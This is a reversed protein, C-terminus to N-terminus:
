ELRILSPKSNDKFEITFGKYEKRKNNYMESTRRPDIINKIESPLIFEYYSTDNKLVKLRLRNPINSTDFEEKYNFIFNKVSFQKKHLCDSIQRQDFEPFKRCFTNICYFQYEINNRVDYGIILKKNSKPHLIGNETTKGGDGGEALNYYLPNSTANYLDIFFIEKKNLEEINECECLIVKIFNEKGYKDIAKKLLIGSGLYNKWNETYQKKGIYKKGNILNTTEYIFGYM